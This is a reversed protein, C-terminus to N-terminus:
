DSAIGIENTREKRNMTDEDLIWANPDRFFIFAGFQATNQNALKTYSWALRMRWHM